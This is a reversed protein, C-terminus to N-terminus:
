EQTEGRRRTREAHAEAARQLETFGFLLLLLGIVVQLTAVARVAPEVPVIDGYGVTSMTVISFHIAEGFSIIRRENLITFHPVPLATDMIRYVCAFIIVLLSYFTLFAFAPIALMRIREFFSQFLIESDLLFMTVDDSVFAVLASIAGQALLFLLIETQPSLRAEPLAFTAAGVGIMPITWGLVTRFHGTSHLRDSRVIAEIKSRQILTAVLFSVVPMVFGLHVAWHPLPQFNTEVFFVFLCTYVGLFNSLGVAFALSGPFLLYYFGFGIVAVVINVGAFLSDEGRLALAILGNLTMTFLVARRWTRDFTARRRIM